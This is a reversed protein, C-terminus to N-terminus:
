SLAIRELEDLLRQASACVEEKLCVPCMNEHVGLVSKIIRVRKSRGPLRETNIECPGGCSVCTPHSVIASEVDVVEGVVGCDRCVAWSHLAM